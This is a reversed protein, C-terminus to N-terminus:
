ALNSTGHEELKHHHYVAVQFYFITMLTALDSPIQLAECSQVFSGASRIFLTARHSLTLQTWSDLEKPAQFNLEVDHDDQRYIDAYRLFVLFQFGIDTNSVTFPPKNTVCFQFM